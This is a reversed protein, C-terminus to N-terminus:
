PGDAYSSKNGGKDAVCVIYRFKKTTGALYSGSITEGSTFPSNWNSVPVGSSCDATATVTTDIERLEIADLNSTDTPLTITFVLNWISNTQDYNQKSSVNVSPPPVPAATPQSNSSSKTCGSFLSILAASLAASFYYRKFKLRYTKM